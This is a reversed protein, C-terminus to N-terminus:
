CLDQKSGNGIFFVYGTTSKRTDRDGGWDADSYGHLSIEESGGLVIGFNRTGQLYRLIRKVASWHQDGPNSVFRSAISTAAMIDPRTNCAIYLLLGVTERYPIGKMLNQEQETSPSMSSDLHLDSYFPHGVPVCTTMNGLELADEIHMPQSLHITRRERDRTIQMGLFQSVSGLDHMEYIASLKAKMDELTGLSKCVLLIDDVYLVIYFKGNEQDRVYVCPDSKTSIFGCATLTADINQNWEHSAQKLGYLSKNLKCVKQEQGPTAFGKPQEMYINEKLESILFATSVDMQHIEYDEIAAISLVAKISAPKAVPSTTDFYDIGDKQTFGKAVM